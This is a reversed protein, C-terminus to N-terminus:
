WLILQLAFTLKVSALKSNIDGDDTGNATEFDETMIAQGGGGEPPPTPAPQDQTIGGGEPPPTPVPQDQTIPTSSGSETNGNQKGLEEPPDGFEEESDLAAAKDRRKQAAADKKVQEKDIAAQRAEESRDM